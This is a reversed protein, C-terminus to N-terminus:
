SDTETIITSTPGNRHLAIRVPIRDRLTEIHSVIGVRRSEIKNLNDLTSMVSELCDSSLSGFGEDIFFIDPTEKISQLSALGLALALSAMFTEGGSLTSFVRNEGTESDHIMVELNGPQTFMTYRNSFRSLYNNANEILHALIYECIVDRFHAEGFYSNLVNMIDYRRCISEYNNTLVEAKKINLDNQRLTERIAGVAQNNKAISEKLLSEKDYLGALPQELQNIHQPKNAEFHNTENRLKELIAKKQQHESLVQDQLM